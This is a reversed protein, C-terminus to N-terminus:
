VTLRHFAGPMPPPTPAVPAVRPVPPQPVMFAPPAPTAPCAPHPTPFPAFAARPGSPRDEEEANITVELSVRRKDRIVDVAFTTGEKEDLAERLEEPSAVEEEDVAVILDGVKIGAREAPTGSLVKSVLVGADEHGGLHRRLEPTTEVLQVGLKPKGWWELVRIRPSIRKMGSDNLDQLNKLGKKLEKEYHGWAEPDMEPLEIGLEEMKQRHLRGHLAGHDGLVAEFKEQEGDRIVTISVRDGPSKEHIRQTLSMPGRVTHGDFRVIIDGEEIGAKAAPSDEVVHLVRAGGEERETEERLQVGLYARSTDENDNDGEDEDSTIVRVDKVVVPDGSGLLEAGWLLGAPLIVLAALGLWKMQVTRVKM